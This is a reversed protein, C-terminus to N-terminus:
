GWRHMIRKSHLYELGCTVDRAFRWLDPEEVPGARIRVSLDGYACYEMVIYLHENEVWADMYEVINPHRIKSLLSAEVFAGNVDKCGLGSLPIVKMVRVDPESFHTVKYCTGYTGKGLVDICTYEASRRANPPTM